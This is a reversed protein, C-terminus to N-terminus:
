RHYPTINRINYVDSVTGENIRLTGNNNVTQVVYPGLYSEVGYKCTQKAKVLVLDGKKYTHPLQKSNEANNNVLIQNRKQDEIFKWNAIHRINIMADRGFILQSPSAQTTTHVTARVAFAVAALIGSWPNNKDIGENDQVLFTRLMNGITQHVRKVISNSQPNRKTIPKKDIGYEESLM